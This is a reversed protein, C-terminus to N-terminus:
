KVMEWSADFCSHTNAAATGNYMSADTLMAVYTGPQLDYTNELGSPQTMESKPAQWQGTRYLDVRAVAKSSQANGPAKFRYTGAVAVDVRVPRNRDLKNFAVFENSVCVRSPAAGEALARFAPKVGDFKSSYNLTSGWNDISQLVPLNVEALVADVAAGSMRTSLGSMFSLVSTLSLTNKHENLLTTVIASAGGRMQSLKYVLYHVSSESYFGRDGVSPQTNVDFASTQGQILGSTDQFM